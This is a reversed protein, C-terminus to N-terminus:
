FPIQDVRLEDEMVEGLDEAKLIETNDPKSDLPKM